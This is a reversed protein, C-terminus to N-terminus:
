RITYLIIRASRGHLRLSKYDYPCVGDLLQLKLLNRKTQLERFRGRRIQQVIDYDITACGGLTLRRSHFSDRIVERRRGEPCIRYRFEHTIDQGLTHIM